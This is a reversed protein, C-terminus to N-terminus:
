QWCHIFIIASIPTIDLTADRKFKTTAQYTQLAYDAVIRISFTTATIHFVGQM